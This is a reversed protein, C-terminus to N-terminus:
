AKLLAPPWPMAAASSGWQPEVLLVGIERAYTELYAQRDRRPQEHNNTVVVLMCSRGNNGATRRRSPSWAHMMEDDEEQQAM